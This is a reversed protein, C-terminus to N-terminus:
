RSMAPFHRPVPIENVQYVNGRKALYAIENSARKPTATLLYRQLRDVIPRVKEPIENPHEQSQLEELLAKQLVKKDIMADEPMSAVAKAVVRQTDFAKEFGQEVRDNMSCSVIHEAIAYMQDANREKKFIKILEKELLKDCDESQARYGSSGLAEELRKTGKYLDSSLYAEQAKALNERNLPIKNLSFPKKQEFGNKKLEEFTDCIKKLYDYGGVLQGDHLVHEYDIDFGDGYLAYYLRPEKGVTHLDNDANDYVAVYTDRLSFTHYQESRGLHVHERDNNVLAVYTEGNKQFNSTRASAIPILKERKESPLSQLFANWDKSDHFASKDPMIKM